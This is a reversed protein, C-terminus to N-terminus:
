KFSIFKKIFFIFYFIIVTIFFSFIIAILYKSDLPNEFDILDIKSIIKPKINKKIDQNNLISIKEKNQKNFFDGLYLNQIKDIKLEKIYNNIKINRNQYYILRNIIREVMIDLRKDIASNIKSKIENSINLKSYFSIRVFNFSSKEIEESFNDEVILESIKGDIEYQRLIELYISRSTNIFFEVYDYKLNFPKPNNITLGLVNEQFYKDSMKFDELISMIQDNTKHIEQNQMQEIHIENFYTDKINEDFNSFIFLLLCFIIIYSFSFLAIFTFKNKTSYTSLDITNM